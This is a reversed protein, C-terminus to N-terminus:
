ISCLKVVLVAAEEETECFAVVNGGMFKGKGNRHGGKVVQFGNGEGLSIIDLHNFVDFTDHTKDYDETSFYKGKM